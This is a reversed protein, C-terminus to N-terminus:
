TSMYVESESDTANIVLQSVAEDQVQSERLYVMFARSTWDGARLLVALSGGHSIIDQAMGRRFAHTGVRQADAM